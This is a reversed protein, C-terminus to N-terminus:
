GDEKNLFPLALFGQGNNGVLGGGALQILRYAEKLLAERDAIAYRKYKGEKLNQEIFYAESFGAYYKVNYSVNEFLIDM